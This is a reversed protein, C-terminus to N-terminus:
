IQHTPVKYLQHGITHCTDCLTILLHNEYQWPKVHIGTRKNKHYQRHHVQLKENSGCNCCQFQDRNLIQGRKRKWQPKILLDNYNSTMRIQINQHYM